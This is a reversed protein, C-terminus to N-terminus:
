APNAAHGNGVPANVLDVGVVEPLELLHGALTRPSSADIRIAMPHHDLLDRIQSLTGVAAIRGRAMIAVHHTLKELEELEHSSILLCKGHEALELFPELFD